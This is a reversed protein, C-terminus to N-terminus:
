LLSPGALFGRPTHDLLGATASHPVMTPLFTTIATLRPLSDQCSFGAWGTRGVCIAFVEPDRADALRGDIGEAAVNAILQELGEVQEVPRDATQLQKARIEQWLVARRRSAREPFGSPEPDPLRNGLSHPVDVM